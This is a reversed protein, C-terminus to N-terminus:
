ISKVVDWWTCVGTLLSHYSAESAPWKLNKQLDRFFCNEAKSLPCPMFNFFFYFYSWWNLEYNCIITLQAYQTQQAEYLMASTKVLLCEDRRRIFMWFKHMQFYACWDGLLMAWLVSHDHFVGHGPDGLAKYRRRCLEPPLCMCTIINNESHIESGSWTLFCMKPSPSHTGLNSLYLKTVCCLDATWIFFSRGHLM